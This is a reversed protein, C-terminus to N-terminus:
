SKREGDVWTSIVGYCDALGWGPQIELNRREEHWDCQIRDLKGVEGVLGLNQKLDEVVRLPMEPKQDLGKMQSGSRPIQTALRATSRGQKIVRCFGRKGRPELDLEKAHRHSRQRDAGAWREPQIGWDRSDVGQVKYGLWLSWVMYTCTGVYGMSSQPM